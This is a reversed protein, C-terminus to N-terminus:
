CNTMGPTSWSHQMVDVRSFGKVPISLWPYTTETEYSMQMMSCTDGAQRSAGDGVEAGLLLSM